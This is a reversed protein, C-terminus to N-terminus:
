KWEVQADIWRILSSLRADTHWAAKAANWLPKPREAFKRARGADRILQSVRQKTLDSQRAIVLLKEGAESRALMAKARHRIRAQHQWFPDAKIGSVAVDPPLYGGRAAMTYFMFRLATSLPCGFEEAVRHVNRAGREDLRVRLEAARTM